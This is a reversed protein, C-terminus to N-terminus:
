AHKVRQSAFFGITQRVINDAQYNGANSLVLSVGTFEYTSQSGDPESIYQYITGSGITGASWFASEISVVLDDIASSGRDVEFQGRWGSPTTFEIPNSNLPDARQHKVEQQAAFGTVDALDVQSGGWFLIVQCNRGITYTNAM